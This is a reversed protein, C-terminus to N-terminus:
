LQIVANRFEEIAQRAVKRQNYTSPTGEFLGTDIDFVGDEDNFALEWKVIPTGRYSFEFYSSDFHVEINGSTKSGLRIAELMMRARAKRLKIGYTEFPFKRLLMINSLVIEKQHTWDEVEEGEYVKSIWLDLQNKTTTLEEHMQIGGGNTQRSMGGNNSYVPM